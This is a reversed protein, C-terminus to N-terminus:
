SRAGKLASGTKCQLKKSKHRVKKDSPKKSKSWCEKKIEPVIEAEYAFQNNSAYLQSRQLEMFTDYVIGILLLAKHSGLLSSAFIYVKPPGGISFRISGWIFFPSTIGLEYLYWMSCAYALWNSPPGWLVFDNWFPPLNSLNSIKNLFESFFFTFLSYVLYRQAVIIPVRRFWTSLFRCFRM